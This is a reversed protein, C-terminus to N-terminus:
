LTQVATYLTAGRHKGQAVVASLRMTFRDATAGPVIEVLLEVDADKATKVADLDWHGDAFREFRDSVTSEKVGPLDKPLNVTKLRVTLPKGKAKAGELVTPQEGFDDFLTDAATRTALAQDSSDAVAWKHGNDERYAGLETHPDRTVVVRVSRGDGYTAVLQTRIGDSAWSTAHQQTALADIGRDRSADGDRVRDFSPSGNRKALTNRLELFLQRNDADTAESRFVLEIRELATGDFDYAAKEVGRWGGPGGNFVLRNGTSETNKLLEKRMDALVVRRDTGLAPLDMDISIFRSPAGPALEPTVAVPTTQRQKAANSASPSSAQLVTAILLPTLM